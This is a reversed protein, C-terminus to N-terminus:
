GASQLAQLGDETTAHVTFYSLFGVASMTDTLNPSLGALAVQGQQAMVQRYTALLLRLGASSMFSVKTMDLLIRANPTALPLIAAQAAPSTSADLEGELEIIHIGGVERTSLAM